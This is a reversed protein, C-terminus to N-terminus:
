EKKVRFFRPQNGSQVSELYQGTGNTLVLQGAVSWLALDNSLELTALAGPPGALGIRWSGGVVQPPGTFRVPLNVTGQVLQLDFSLDTQQRDERHLEVAITNTGARLLSPLVPVATWFNQKERNSGTALADYIASAPLNRRFIETDNLYVAVGDTFCLQLSLNTVASPRTFQRRFYTTVNKEFDDFGFSVVTQEDGQGYGLQAPGSAWASDDFTMGRWATGEDAGTDQYRWDEGPRIFVVPQAPLSADTRRFYNLPPQFGEATTYYGLGTAHFGIAEGNVENTAVSQQSGSAALAAGVTQNLARNWTWVRGNRRMCILRGDFSIDAAGVSRFGNFIMERIFTLEIPSGGDLEARTARYLRASNTQKTAIFLDGTWPDVMMAEADFVGDPYAMQIEQVGFLPLVPPSNSYYPYVAPEPFRFVRISTRNTFNDGIDGLYVYQHEPNPGPGIAIDEFNGFSATPVYWRGLPTGNTSIAFISGGFGTDNHTWLVNSNQRSAVIGSAESIEFSSLSGVQVASGFTQARALWPALLGGMLLLVVWFRM